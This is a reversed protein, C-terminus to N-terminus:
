SGESGERDSEKSEADAGKCRETGRATSQRERHTEERESLNIGRSKDARDEEKGNEGERSGEGKKRRMM